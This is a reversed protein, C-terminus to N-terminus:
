TPGSGANSAQRGVGGRPSAGAATEGYADSSRQLSDQRLPQAAWM